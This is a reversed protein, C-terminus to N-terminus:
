YISGERHVAESYLQEYEESSLEDDYAAETIIRDTEETSESTIIRGSYYSKKM